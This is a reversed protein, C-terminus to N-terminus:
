NSHVKIRGDQPFVSVILQLSQGLKVSGGGETDVDRQTEADLINLTMMPLQTIPTDLKQNDVAASSGGAGGYICGIKAYRTMTTADEDSTDLRLTAYFLTRNEYRNVVQYATSVGCIDRNIADGIRLDLQLSRLM